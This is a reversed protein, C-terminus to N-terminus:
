SSRDSTNWGKEVLTLLRDRTTRADKLAEVTQDNGPIFTGLAEALAQLVERNASLFVPMESNESTTKWVIDGEPTLSHAYQINKGYRDGIRIDVRERWDHSEIFVKM